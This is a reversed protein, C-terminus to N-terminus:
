HSYCKILGCMFTVRMNCVLELIHYLEGNNKHWATVIHYLGRLDQYRIFMKQLITTIITITQGTFKFKKSGVVFFANFSELAEKATPLDGM